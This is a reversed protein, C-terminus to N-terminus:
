DCNVGTLNDPRPVFVGVAWIYARYYSPIGTGINDHGNMNSRAAVTMQGAQFKTSASASLRGARFTWVISTSELPTFFRRNM